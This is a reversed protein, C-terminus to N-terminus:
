ATQKEEPEYKLFKKLAKRLVASVNGDMKENAYRILAEKLKPDKPKFQIPREVIM